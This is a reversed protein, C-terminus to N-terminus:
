PQGLREGVLRRAFMSRYLTQRCLGLSQKYLTTLILPGTEGMGRKIGYAGPHDDGDIPHVFDRLRNASFTWGLGLKVDSRPHPEFRTM